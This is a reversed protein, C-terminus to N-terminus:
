FRRGDLVVKIAKAFSFSNLFDQLHYKEIVPSGVGGV